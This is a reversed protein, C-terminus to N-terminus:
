GRRRRLVGLGFLGAGLLMMSAPEPAAVVEMTDTALPAGVSGCKAANNCFVSLTFDYTDPVNPDFGPDNFLTAISAFSLTESNQDAWDITPDNSGSPVKGNPGVDTNDPIIRPDFGGSTANGVDTMSLQATIDSLTLNTTNGFPNLDISFDFGWISGTKGPVSTSGIPVHYINTNPEPVIPGIYRTIASLGLEIGNSTDVTFDSNANGSGFYVGPVGKATNPSVLAADFATQARALGPALVAFITAAGALLLSALKPLLGEEM